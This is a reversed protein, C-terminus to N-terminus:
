NNKYMPRNNEWKIVGAKALYLNRNAHWYCAISHQTNSLIKYNNIHQVYINIHMNFLYFYKRIKSLLYQNDIIM